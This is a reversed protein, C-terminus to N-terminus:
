MKITTRTCDAPSRQSGQCRDLCCVGVSRRRQRDLVRCERVKRCWKRSRHSHSQSFLPRGTGETQPRQTRTKEGDTQRSLLPASPFTRSGRLQSVNVKNLFDQDSSTVEITLRNADASMHVAVITENSVIATRNLYGTQDTYTNKIRTVQQEYQSLLWSPCLNVSSKSLQKKSPLKNSTSCSTCSRANSGRHRVQSHHEWPGNMNRKNYHVETAGIQECNQAERNGASSGSASTSSQASPGSPDIRSPRCGMVYPM